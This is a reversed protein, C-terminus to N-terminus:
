LEIPEPYALLYPNIPMFAIYDAMTRTKTQNTYAYLEDLYAWYEERHAKEWENKHAQRTKEELCYLEYEKREIAEETDLRFKELAAQKENYEQRLTEYNKAPTIKNKM